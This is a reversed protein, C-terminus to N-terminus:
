SPYEVSLNAASMGDVLAELFRPEVMLAGGFYQADEGVNDNLWSQCALTLPRVGVLSGHNEIRFDQQLRKTM